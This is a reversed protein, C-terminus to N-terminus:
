PFAGDSAPERARFLAWQLTFCSGFGAESKVTLRADFAAAIRQAVALGLGVGSVGLRRADVSRYFPEFVHPLDDFGIGNGQDEVELSVVGQGKGLRLIIPTGPKSYKCANDILNDV